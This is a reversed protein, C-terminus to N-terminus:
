KLIDDKTTVIAKLFMGVGIMHFKRQTPFSPKNLHDHDMVFIAAMDMCCTYFDAFSQHTITRTKVTEKVQYTLVQKRPPPYSMFYHKDLNDNAHLMNLSIM